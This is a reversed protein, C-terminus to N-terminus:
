FLIVFHKKGIECIFVSRFHCKLLAPNYVNGIVECSQMTIIGQCRKHFFVQNSSLQTLRISGLMQKTILNYISYVILTFNLVYFYQFLKGLMSFVSYSVWLVFHVSELIANLLVFLISSYVTKLMVYMVYHTLKLSQDDNKMMRLWFQSAFDCLDKSNSLKSLCIIVFWKFHKNESTRHQQKM